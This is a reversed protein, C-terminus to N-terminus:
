ESRWADPHGELGLSVSVAPRGKRFMARIIQSHIHFDPLCSFFSQIEKSRPPKGISFVRGIKVPHQKEYEKRSNRLEM